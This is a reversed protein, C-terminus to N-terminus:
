ALNHARYCHLFTSQIADIHDTIGTLVEASTKHIHHLKLINKIPYCM